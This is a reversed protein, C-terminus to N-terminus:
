YTFLKSFDRSKTLQVHTEFLSEDNLVNKLMVGRRLITVSFICRPPAFLCGGLFLATSQLVQVKEVMPISM